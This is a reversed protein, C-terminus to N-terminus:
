LWWGWAKLIAASIALVAASAGVGALFGNNYGKRYGDKYTTLLRLDGEQARM